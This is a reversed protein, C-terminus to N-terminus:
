HNFTMKLTLTDNELDLPRFDRKLHASIQTKVIFSPVLTIGITRTIEHSFYHKEIIKTIYEYQHDFTSNLYAVFPPM